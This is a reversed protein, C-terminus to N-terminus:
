CPTAAWTAPGQGHIINGSRGVPSRQPDTLIALTATDEPPVVAITRAEAVRLVAVGHIPTGDRNYLVTASELTAPGSPPAITPPVAGRRADAHAQVSYEPALPPGAAASFVLAHHKTVFEGQGYVLGTGGSERLRRVMACIAHLMYDSLPAGFFTLGGTVTPAVDDGLGLTRRAMKPVCPFCSYLELADFGTPSIAMAAELVADQAHSRAFGDRAMFDRPESAAAGGLLHIMRNEAIGYDRAVNLSTVIVAAGQNVLPNAVMLKTYPFAIPRNGPGPTVIDHASIARPLWSSPNGAAVQSYREWLAGSEALAAAPTQGWAAAAAMDYLPYVNTPATLGAAAALPHILDRGSLSKPADTAYPTWALTAAERHARAASYQAEAGCVIAIRGDGRAIRLAADHVMRVPSEGGIEAYFRHRPVIGLRAALQGAPDAYRWSSINVLDLADAEAILREAGADLAAARVATEALALPERAVDLTAPRDVVEGCGVLVPILAPDTM